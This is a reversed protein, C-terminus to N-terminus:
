KKNTQNSYMACVNKRKVVCFCYQHSAFVSVICWSSCNTEMMCSSQIISSFHFNTVLLPIVVLIKSITLFLSMLVVFIKETRDLGSEGIKLFIATRDLRSGSFNAETWTWDPETSMEPPQKANSRERGYDPLGIDTNGVNRKERSNPNTKKHIQPTKQLSAPHKNQPKNQSFNAQKKPKNKTSKQIASQKREFKIAIKKKWSVAFRIKPKNIHLNAWKQSTKKLNDGM